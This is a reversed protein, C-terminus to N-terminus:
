VAEAGSPGVFTFPFAVKPSARREMTLRVMKCLIGVEDPFLWRNHEEM